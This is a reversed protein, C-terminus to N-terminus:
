TNPDQKLVSAIMQTESKTHSLSTDATVACKLFAPVKALLIDEFHDHLLSYM